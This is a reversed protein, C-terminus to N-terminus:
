SRIPRLSLTRAGKLASAMLRFLGPSNLERVVQASVLEAGMAQAARLGTDAIQGQTVRGPVDKLVIVVASM